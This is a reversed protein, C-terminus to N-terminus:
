LSNILQHLALRLRDRSQMLTAVNETAAQLNREAADARDTEAPSLLTRSIDELEKIRALAEDYKKQTVWAGAQGAVANMQEIQARQEDIIKSLRRIDTRADDREVELLKIRERASELDYETKTSSMDLSVLDAHLKRETEELEKIRSEYLSVDVCALIEEIHEHPYSKMVEEFRKPRVRLVDFRTAYTNKTM